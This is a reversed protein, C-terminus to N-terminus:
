WYEPGRCMKLCRCRANKRGGAGPLLDQLASVECSIFYPARMEDVLFISYPIPNDHQYFIPPSGPGRWVYWHPPASKALSGDRPNWTRKEGGRRTGVDLYKDPPFKGPNRADRPQLKGVRVSTNCHSLSRSPHMRLLKVPFTTIHHISNPSKLLPIKICLIIHYSIESELSWSILTVILIKVLSNWTFWLSQKIWWMVRILM